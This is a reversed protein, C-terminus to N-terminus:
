WDHSARPRLPPVRDWGHQSLAPSCARPETPAGVCGHALPLQHAHHTAGADKQPSRRSRKDYRATSAATPHPGMTYTNTNTGHPAVHTHQLPPPLVVISPPMHHAGETGHVDTPERGAFSVSGECLVFLLFFLLPADYLCSRVHNEMSQTSPPHRGTYSVAFRSGGTHLPLRRPSAIRPSCQSPPCTTTASVCITLSARVPTCTARQSPVFLHQELPYDHNDDCARHIPSRSEGIYYRNTGACLLTQKTNTSKPSPLM